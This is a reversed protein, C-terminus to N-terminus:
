DQDDSCPKVEPLSRGSPWCRTPANDNASEALWEQAAQRALLHVLPRLVTRVQEPTMTQPVTDARHDNAPILIHERGIRGDKAM